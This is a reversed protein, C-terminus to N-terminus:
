FLGCICDLSAIVVFAKKVLRIELYMDDIKPRHPKVTERAEEEEQMEEEEVDDEEVEEEDDFQGRCAKSAMEKRYQSPSADQESDSVMEPSSINFGITPPDAFPDKEAGDSDSSSDSSWESRPM